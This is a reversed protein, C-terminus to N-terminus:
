MYSTTDFSSTLSSVPHKKLKISKQEHTQLFEQLHAFSAQVLQATHEATWSAHLFTTQSEPRQLPSFNNQPKVAM